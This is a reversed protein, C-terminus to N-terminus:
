RRAVTRAGLGILGLALLLGFLTAPLTDGATNPLAAPLPAPAAPAPAPNVVPAPVPDAPAAVVAAPTIFVGDIRSAVRGLHYLESIHVPAVALAADAQVTVTWRRTEGPALTFGQWAARQTLNLMGSSGDIVRLGDSFSVLLDSNRYPADNCLNRLAIEVTATGGPALEIFQPSVAMDPTLACEAPAADDGAPVVGLLSEPNWRRALNMGGPYAYSEASRLGSVYVQLPQSSTLEYAGPDITLVAYDFAAGALPQWETVPTGNLQVATDRARIVTVSHTYVRDDISATTFRVARLGAEVSIMMLMSPDGLKNDWTFGNFYRVLMFPQDASFVLASNDQQRYEFFEGAALTVLESGNLSVVTDVWAYGRFTDQYDRGAAPPVIYETGWSPVPPVSEVAYDCFGIGYPVDPCTSYGYVTVPRDAEVITGSPDVEVAVDNIEVSAVEYVFVQGRDLMITVPSGFDPAGSQYLEVAQTRDVAFPAQERPQYTVATDDEHAIVVFGSRNGGFSAWEAASTYSPISFMTGGANTPPVLLADAQAYVWWNAYLSINADATVRISSNSVGAVAAAPHPKGAARPLEVTITEGAPVTFPIDSFAPDTFEILGAANVASSIYLYLRQEDYTDTTDDAPRNVTLALFFERGVTSVIEQAAAPRAAPVAAAVLAAVAVFLLLSRKLIQMGESREETCHTTPIGSGRYREITM